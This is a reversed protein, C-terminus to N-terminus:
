VKCHHQHTSQAAIPGSQRERRWALFHSTLPPPPAKDDVDDDIKHSFTHRKYQPVPVTNSRIPWSRLTAGKELNRAKTIISDVSLGTNVTSPRSSLLM